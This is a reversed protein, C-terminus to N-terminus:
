FGIKIGAQISQAFFNSQGAETQYDTFLTLEKAVQVDVGLDIFASDRDPSTTQVTFSGGGTQNFESTIGDSNDLFEHQWSASIHPTIYISGVRASYRAEVGLQSRLSQADQNQINLATPGQEQFSDIQLEVYQISAVPGFKWGGKQFEYGGTLNGNFQNGQPAGHNTGNLAGIQINRDETYSNYDYSFLGNGYWGGDVYSAYIGPSYSDVTATSGIHDLNADTHSYGVLAGVTFHADIRYDAGLTVAGTTYDQHALDESHSLDALVVNGAIFTSWRSSPEPTARTEKADGLEVGGLIPEGVDSILGPTAEPNWALLRGNIQSLTSDLSPDNITLQSGDFGTLGDRLNALHDNLQQSAFTANDFAVSRFVQLSQPSIEDLAGGLASPDGILPYLSSSIANINGGPAISDVYRAVATQNATLGPTQALFMQNFVLEVDNPDYVIHGQLYAPLILTVTEGDDTLAGNSHILDLPGTSVFGNLVDVTLNGGLSATGTATLKDFTTPSSGSLFLTGATQTYNSVHTNDGVNIAHNVGDTGLTGGNVTVFGTGLAAANGVVLSGGNLGLTTGGSYTNAGSLIQTGSGNKLLSIAHTGDAIVGAYAGSGNSNGVSLQSAVTNGDTVLAGAAGDLADVAVNNGNLDVTGAADVELSGTGFANAHGAQLIGAHVITGGSYTNAGSFLATGLGAKTIVGSGSIVGSLTAGLGNTDLTSNTNAQLTTAVATTLATGIVQLTGGGLNLAATGAGQAIGNTGGIQLMGGTLNIVGAGTALDGLLIRSNFTAIGASLNYTGTGGEGLIFTASAAVNLTGGAQNLNGVSAAAEGFRDLGGIINLHGAALDYNGTSDADTGVYFLGTNVNSITVVSGAGDQLITGTGGGTGLYTQSFSPAVVSFTSNDSIHLLGNGGASDGIYITGSTAGGVTVSANNTMTYTGVGGFTGVEFAASNVNVTGGSQNFFGTCGPDLGVIIAGFAGGTEASDNVTITGSSMNVTGVGDNTATDTGVFFGINQSLVRLTITGGSINLTGTGGYGIQLQGQGTSTQGTIVVTSGANLTLNGPAGVTGVNLNAVSNVTSGSGLVSVGDLNLDNSGIKNLSGSGSIGNLTVALNATDTTNITSTTGTVLVTPATTTLASGIVQLTGGGLNLTGVGTIGNAGGVQLTGSDLNYATGAQALNLTGLTTTGGTQDINGQNVQLSGISNAANNLTLDGAGAKILGGTGTLAGTFSAGLGNTDITSATAATLNVNASTTLASGIVQITGGGFNFNTTPTGTGFRSQLGTGGVQLMGGDLNYTGTGYASLYFTGGADIRIVGGTQTLVGTGQPATATSINGGLALYGASQIELLGGSVNLQGSTPGNAAITSRGLDIYANVVTLAGATLNYTGAGGQNGITLSATQTTSGIVVSSGVDQTFTGTGGFDGVRFSPTPSNASPTAVTISGNSLTFAGANAVGATTGTGVALESLSTAGATQSAQGGVVYFSGLQNTAGSLTVTGPGGAIFIGNGTLNANGTVALTVGASPSLILYTALNASLAATSANSGITLIDGSAATLQANTASTPVGDTWNAPNNFNQDAATGTWSTDANALTAFALVLFFIPAFSKM